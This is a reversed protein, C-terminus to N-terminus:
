GPSDGRVCDAPPRVRDVGGDLDDDEVPVDKIHLGAGSERDASVHGDDVIETQGAVAVERHVRGRLRIM